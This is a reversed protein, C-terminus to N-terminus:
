GFDGKSGTAATQTPDINICYGLGFRDGNFDGPAVGNFDLPLLKESIQNSIMAAVTESKLIRRDDLSGRNLIM